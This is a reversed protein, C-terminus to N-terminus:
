GRRAEAAPDQQAALDRLLVKVAETHPVLCTSRLAAWENGAAAGAVIRARGGVVELAAGRLRVAFLAEWCGPDSADQFAKTLLGTWLDSDPALDPRPDVGLLPSMGAHTPKPRTARGSAGNERTRQAENRKRTMEVERLGARDKPMSPYGLGMVAGTSTPAM